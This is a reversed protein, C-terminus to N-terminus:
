IETGAKIFGNGDIVIQKGNALIKTDLTDTIEKGYFFYTVKVMQLAVAGVENQFEAPVEVLALKQIQIANTMTNTKKTNLITEKKRICLYPSKPV